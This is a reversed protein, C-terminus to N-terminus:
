LASELSELLKIHESTKIPAFSYYRNEELSTNIERDLRFIAPRATKTPDTTVQFALFGVKPTKEDGIASEVADIFPKLKPNLFAPPKELIVNLESSYIRKIPLDSYSPVGFEESLWSGVDELFADGADTSNQTDVVLGDPHLTLSLIHIVTGEKNTFGGHEYKVEQTGATNNDFPGKLFQYRDKMQLSAPRLFLGRPNLFYQPVLWISRAMRVGMLKM